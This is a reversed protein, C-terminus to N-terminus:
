RRVSPDPSILGGVKEQQTDLVFLGADSVMPQAHSAHQLTSRVVFNGPNKCIATFKMEAQMGKPLDVSRFSLRSTQQDITYSTDEMPTLWEPIEVDVFVQEAQTNGTNSAIIMFEVTDGVSVPGTMNKMALKLDSHIYANTSLALQNMETEDSRIEVHCTQAKETLLKAKFQITEEANPSMNSLNWTLTRNQANYDGERSLVTVEMGDPIALKVVTNNITVQCPNRIQITYDGERNPLNVKPGLLEAYLEPWVVNVDTNQSLDISSGTLLYQVPSVGTQDSKTKVILERTEGPGLNGVDVYDKGDNLLYMDSALGLRLELNKATGDGHNYVRIKHDVDRGVLAHPATLVEFQVDPQRVAIQVRNQEIFSCETAIEMPAKSNAIVQMLVERQAAQEIGDIEWTVQLSNQEIPEPTAQRFEVHDPLYATIRVKGTHTKGTNTALLRLNTLEGVNVQEAAFLETKISHHSSSTNSSVQDSTPTSAPRATQQYPSPPQGMTQQVAAATRVPVRTPAAPTDELVPALPNKVPASNFSDVDLRPAGAQSSELGPAQPLPPGGLSPPPVVQASESQPLTSPNKPKFPAFQRTRRSSQQAALECSFLGLLTCIILTKKM